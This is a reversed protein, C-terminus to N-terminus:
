LSKFLIIKLLTLAWKFNKNKKHKKPMKIHKYLIKVIIGRNYMGASHPFTSTIALLKLV